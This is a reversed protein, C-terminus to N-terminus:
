TPPGFILMQSFWVLFGYVVILGSMVVPLGVFALLLFRKWENQPNADSAVVASELCGDSKRNM